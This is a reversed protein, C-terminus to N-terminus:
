KFREFSKRKLAVDDKYYYKLTLPKIGGKYTLFRKSVGLKAFDKQHKEEEVGIGQGFLCYM